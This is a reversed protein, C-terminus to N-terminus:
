RFRAEAMEYHTNRPDDLEDDREPNDL